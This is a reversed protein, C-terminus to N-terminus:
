LRLAQRLKYVAAKVLHSERPATAASAGRSRPVPDQTSEGETPMLEEDEELFDSGVSQRMRKARVAAERRDRGLAKSSERRRSASDTVAGSAKFSERRAAFHEAAM